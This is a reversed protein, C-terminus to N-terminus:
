DASCKVQFSSTTPEIRVGPELRNRESGTSETDFVLDPILLVSMEDNASLHRNVGFPATVADEM